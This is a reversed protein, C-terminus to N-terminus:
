TSKTTQGARWAGMAMIHHNPRLTGLRQFYTTPFSGVRGMEHIAILEDNLFRADLQPDLMMADPHRVEISRSGADVMIIFAPSMYDPIPQTTLHSGVAEEHFQRRPNTWTTQWRYGQRQHNALRLGDAFPGIINDNLFITLLVSAPMGVFPETASLVIINAAVNLVAYRDIAKM